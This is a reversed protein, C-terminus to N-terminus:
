HRQSRSGHRYAYLKTLEAGFFFVQASYYVWILVLILSGAAGYASAVASKGLYYGILFKGAAFFLSTIAAGFWVDKWAITRGPLWKYVMAFLLTVVAMSVLFNSVQLSIGVAGWYETFASIGASLVLSVLLLFGIAIVLTLSLIRNKIFASISMDPPDPIEWIQDLSDKLEAFVTTAGIFLTALGILVAATGYVPQNASQLLSEIARAGEGGILSEIQRAIGGRAAEEGFFFGAIAIAIILIPALSFLTYFALAAGKRPARDAVWQYASDRILEWAPRLFRRIM